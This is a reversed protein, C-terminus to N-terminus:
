IKKIFNSLFEILDNYENFSLNEYTDLVDHYNKNPGMTYIFFAPVGNESFWYHDSNAAKGRKKINSLYKNNKNTNVLKDFIKPYETANVVTIGEEGSGMIDLNLVFDINTLPILPHDVYYKSGILGAEEGAFAIFVINKKRKQTSLLDTLAFLMSTGSANDNAGPFFVKDGMGGLHDYHATIFLYHNTPKKAPLVALVNRAKHNSKLQSIINSEVLSNKQVELDKLYILTHKMQVNSVSFTLKESLILIVDYYDSLKKAVSKIQKLSDGKLDKAQIVISNISNNNSIKDLLVSFSSNELLDNPKLLQFNWKKKSSGSSPDVLFDIGPKLLKDDIKLEMHSPFTNVDFYFEQFFTGNISQLGRKKFEDAIYFASLSDGGKVYGRGFYKESCLNKCLSKIEENQSYLNFTFFCTFLLLQLYQKLNFVIM